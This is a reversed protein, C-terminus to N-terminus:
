ARAEKELKLFEEVNKLLILAKTTKFGKAILQDKDLAV